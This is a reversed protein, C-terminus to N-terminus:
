INIAALFNNLFSFIVMLTTCMQVLTLYMKAEHWVLWYILVSVYRLFVIYYWGFFFNIYKLVKVLNQCINMPNM